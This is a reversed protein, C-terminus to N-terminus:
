PFRRLYTRLMRGLKAVMWHGNKSVQEDQFGYVLRMGGRMYPLRRRVVQGAAFDQKHFAQGDFGWLSSYCSCCSARFREPIMVALWRLMSLSALLSFSSRVARFRLVHKKGFIGVQTAWDLWVMSYKGHWEEKGSMTISLKSYSQFWIEDLIVRCDPQIQSSAWPAWPYPVFALKAPLKSASSASAASDTALPSM